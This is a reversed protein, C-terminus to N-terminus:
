FLILKIQFVILTYSWKLCLLLYILLYFIENTLDFIQFHRLVFYLNFCIHENENIIRCVKQIEKIWRNVGNQLQNLFTSDEVLDGFDVVKPKRGEESCKKVVNAVAPHVQLSIEPIDINQQLHLLGMELETIKKEVSPVM